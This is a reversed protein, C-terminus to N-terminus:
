ENKPGKGVMKFKAEGESSRTVVAVRKGGETRENIGPESAEETNHNVAVATATRRCRRVKSGKCLSPLPSFISRNPEPTSRTFTVDPSPSPKPTAIRVVFYECICKTHCIQLECKLKGELEMIQRHCGRIRVHDTAIGILLYRQAYKQPGSMNQKKEQNRHSAEDVDEGSHFPVPSRVM